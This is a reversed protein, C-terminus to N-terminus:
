RLDFFSSFLERANVEFNQMLFMEPPRSYVNGIV